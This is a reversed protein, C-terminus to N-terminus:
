DMVSSETDGDGKKGGGWEEMAQIAIVPHSLLKVGERLEAHRAAARILGVQDLGKKM